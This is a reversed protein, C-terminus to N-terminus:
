TYRLGFNLMNQAIDWFQWCEKQFFFYLIVVRFCIDSFSLCPMLIETPWATRSDYCYKECKLWSSLFQWKQTEWVIQKVISFYLKVFCHQYNQFQACFMSLKPRLHLEGRLPTLCKKLQSTTGKAIICCPPPASLHCFPTDPKSM